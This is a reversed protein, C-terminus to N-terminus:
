IHVGHHILFLLRNVRLKGLIDWYPSVPRDESSQSSGNVFSGFLETNSMQMFDAEFGPYPVLVATIKNVRCEGSHFLSIPVSVVLEKKSFVVEVMPHPRLSPVGTLASKSGRRNSNIELAKPLVKYGSSARERDM